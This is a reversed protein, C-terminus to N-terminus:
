HRILESCGVWRTSSSLSIFLFSTAHNYDLASLVRELVRVFYPLVYYLVTGAGLINDQIYEPDPPWSSEPPVPLLGVAPRRLGGASAAALLKKPRNVKLAIGGFFAFSPRKYALEITKAYTPTIAESSDIGCKPNRKPVNRHNNHGHACRPVFVTNVSTNVM